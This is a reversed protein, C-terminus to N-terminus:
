NDSMPLLIFVFPLEPYGLTAAPQVVHGKLDTGLYERYRESSIIFPLKVIMIVHQTIKTLHQRHAIM